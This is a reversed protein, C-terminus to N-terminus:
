SGPRRESGLWTAFGCPVHSHPLLGRILHISTSPTRSPLRRNSCGDQPRIPPIPVSRKADPSVTSLTISSHAIISEVAPTLKLRCPTYAGAMCHRCMGFTTSLRLVLFRIKALNQLVRILCPGGTWRQKLSESSVGESKNMNVGELVSLVLAAAPQKMGSTCCSAVPFPKM